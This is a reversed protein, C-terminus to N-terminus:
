GLAFVNNLPMWFANFRQECYIRICSIEYCITNWFLYKLIFKEFLTSINSLTLELNDVFPQTLTPFELFRWSEIARALWFIMLNMQVKFLNILWQISRLRAIWTIMLHKLIKKLFGIFVCAGWGPPYLKIKCIRM